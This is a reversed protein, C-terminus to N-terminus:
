GESIIEEIKEALQIAKRNNDRNTATVEVTISYYELAGHKVEVKVEVTNNAMVIKVDDAPIPELGADLLLRLIKPLDDRLQKWHKYGSVVIKM